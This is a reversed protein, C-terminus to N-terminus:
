NNILETDIILGEKYGIKTISKILYKKDEFLIRDEESINKRYHTTFVLRRSNFIEKDDITKDGSVFKVDARLTLGNVWSIIEAGYEDKAISKTLIQITHRLNGLVLVM